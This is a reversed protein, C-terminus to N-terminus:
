NRWNRGFEEGAALFALYNDRMAASLKREYPGATPSLVFREGRAEDLLARVAERMSAPDLRRFEDYQVNGILTMRGRVAEFARALTCNGVPPSEITHLADAGMEIFAPLLERVQGHFHSIVLKGYSHVLEVIEKEFPVIWERFAEPGVMPPAALESGVLFYVDALERELCWRYKALFHRQAKRLFSAIEDRRTLSWVPYELLSSAHYLPVIPEGLDLMMAGLREPFEAREALYRALLPELSAAVEAEDDALPLSLYFDLDDDTELLRKESSDGDGLRLRARLERGGFGVVRERLEAGAAASAAGGAAGVAGCPGPGDRRESTRDSVPAAFLPIDLNRRDLVSAGAEMAEYVERYSPEVRADAYYETRHYPFLLWVPVRDVEGGRLAALIRERGTM